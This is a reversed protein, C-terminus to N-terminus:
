SAVCVRRGGQEKAQTMLDTAQRLLDQSSNATQPYCGAGASWTVRSEGGRVTLPRAELVDTTRRVIRSLAHTEADVLLLGIATSDALTAVVDTARLQRAAVEAVQDAVVSGQERPVDPALCVVAVCYQLRAAKEVELDVLLKFVQEDV